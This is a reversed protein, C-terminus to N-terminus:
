RYKINTNIDTNIDINFKLKLILILIMYKKGSNKQDGDSKKIGIDDGGVVVIIPLNIPIKQM